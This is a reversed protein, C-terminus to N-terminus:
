SGAGADPGEARPQNQEPALSDLIDSGYNNVLETRVWNARQAPLTRLYEPKLEHLEDSSYRGWAWGAKRLRKPMAQIDVHGGILAAAALHDGGVFAFAEESCIWYAPSGDSRFKVAGTRSASESIKALERALFDFFPVDYEGISEWGPEISDLIEDQDERRAELDLHMWSGFVDHKQIAEEEFQLAPEFNPTVFPVHGKLNQITMVAERLSRARDQREKLSQEAAIFFLLPALEVIQQRTTGYREAVLALANGCAPNISLNM